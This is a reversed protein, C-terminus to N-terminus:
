NQVRLQPEVDGRGAQVGRLVPNLGKTLSVRPMRLEPLDKCSRKWMAEGPRCTQLVPNVTQSSNLCWVGLVRPAPLDPRLVQPQLVM